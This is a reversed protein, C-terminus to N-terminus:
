KLAEAVTALFGRATSLHARLEDQTLGVDYARHHCAQRLATWALDAARAQPREGLYAPLCIWRDTQTAELMAPAKRAWFVDLTSELCQRILAAAAHPWAGSTQPDFTDLQREAEDLVTKVSLSM